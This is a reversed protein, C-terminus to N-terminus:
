AGTTRPKLSQLAARLETTVREIALNLEDLAGHLAEVEDAAPQRPTGAPLMMIEGRRPGSLIVVELTEAMPTM